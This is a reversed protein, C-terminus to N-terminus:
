AIESIQKKNKKKKKLKIRQSFLLAHRLSVGEM